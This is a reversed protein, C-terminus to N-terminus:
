HSPRPGFCVRTSLMNQTSVHTCTWSCCCCSAANVASSCAVLSCAVCCCFSKSLAFLYAFCCQLVCLPPPQQKCGDKPKHPKRANSTIHQCFCSSHASARCASLVHMRRLFGITCCGSHATHTGRFLM